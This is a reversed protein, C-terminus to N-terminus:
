VEWFEGMDEDEDQDNTEIINEDEDVEAAQLDRFREVEM